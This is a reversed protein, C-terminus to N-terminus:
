DPVIAADNVKAREMVEAIIPSSERVSTLFHTRWEKWSEHKNDSKQLRRFHREDLAKFYTNANAQVSPLGANQGSVLHQLLQTMTALLQAMDVPAGLNQQPIGLPPDVPAGVQFSM